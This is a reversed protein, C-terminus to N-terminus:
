LLSGSRSRTRGCRHCPRSACDGDTVSGTPWCKEVPVSKHASPRNLTTHVEFLEWALGGLSLRLDM